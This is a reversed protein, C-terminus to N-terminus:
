PCGASFASLFASVDFFDYNGDGTFDGAPEQGTFATLFASIDFFDLNGDGTLDADCKDGTGFNEILFASTTGDMLAGYGVIDGDNNVGTAEILVAFESQPGLLDNLDHMEGNVYAWAHPDLVFNGDWAYGVIMGSDNVDAAESTDYGDLTGLTQVLNGPEGTFICANGGTTTSNFGSHGVMLGNNNIAKAQSFFFGQPNIDQNEYGGGGDPVAHTADDPDGFFFASGVLEGDNNVGYNAGGMYFSGAGVTQAPNVQDWIFGKSFGPSLPAQGVILGHDNIDWPISSGVSGIATHVDIMGGRGDWLTAKRLGDGQESYGVIEGNNNIAQAWSLVTGDLTGLATPAGSADWRTGMLVGFGDISQGIVEDLDNIDMALSGTGGLPPLAVVEQGMTSGTVLLLLSLSATTHHKM